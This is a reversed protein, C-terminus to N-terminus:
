ALGWWDSAVGRTIRALEEPTEDNSPVIVEFTYPGPYNVDSFATLIDDWRFRGLTPARHDAGQGEGEVDHIHTGRLRPGAARIEAAPDDELIGAHGVDIILGLHDPPYLDVLPRLERMRRYPYDCDYPLNELNIRVGAKQAVPVLEDLSRSVADKVLGPVAPNDPDPVFVPNPIPHVVMDTAGLEGVFNVYSFLLAVEQRRWEEDTAGLVTRQSPAHVSRARLGRQEVRARFESLTRGTLPTAVHPGKGQIETQPFGAEAVADLAAEVDRDNFGVTSYSTDDM